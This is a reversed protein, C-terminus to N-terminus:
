LLLGVCINNLTGRSAADVIFDVTMKKKGRRAAGETANTGGDADFDDVRNVACVDELASKRRSTM